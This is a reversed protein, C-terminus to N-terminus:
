IFGVQHIYTKCLRCPCNEPKWKKILIKFIDLTEADKIQSPILEWVKPGLYRLSNEGYHVTRIPRTAFCYQNRLNYVPQSNLPFVDTLIEPRQEKYVKFLFKICYALM